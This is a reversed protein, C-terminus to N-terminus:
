RSSRAYWSSSRMVNKVPLRVYVLKFSSTDREHCTPAPVGEFLMCCVLKVSPQSVRREHAAGRRRRPFAINQVGHLSSRTRFGNQVGSHTPEAVTHKQACRERLGRFTKYNFM